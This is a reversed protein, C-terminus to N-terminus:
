ETPLVINDLLFKEKNEQVSSLMIRFNAEEEYFTDQWVKDNNSRVEIYCNSCFPLYDKDLWCLFQRLGSDISCLDNLSYYNPIDELQNYYYFVIKDDDISRYSDNHRIWLWYLWFPKWWLEILKNLLQELTKTETTM